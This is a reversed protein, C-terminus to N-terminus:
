YFRQKVYDILVNNINDGGLYLDGAKGSEIFQNGASTVISADFTSAGFDFVVITKVDDSDPRFGYSIAAATPEPLLECQELGAKIAATQMANRQKDNFYAPITIVARTIKDRQEQQEQYIDANQVLKKIIEAAIDEPEYEKGGLWVSLSNETGKTSQTIKYPFYSLQQQVVSDVFSRGLLKSIGFIVNEPDAKQNSLAEQGVILKGGKLGVVSPTLKRDPPINDPATVIETTKDFYFAVIANKFGFHIGVNLGM